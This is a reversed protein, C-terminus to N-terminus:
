NKKIKSSIKAGAIKASKQLMMLIEAQKGSIEVLQAELKSIDKKVRAFSEKLGEDTVMLVM